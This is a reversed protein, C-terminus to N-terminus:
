AIMMLRVQSLHTHGVHSQVTHRLPFGTCEVIVIPFKKWENHKTLNEITSDCFFVLEPVVVEETVEEGSKRAAIIDEKKASHFKEKLKKKVLSLGYGVSMCRHYAPLVEVRLDKLGPITVHDHPQVPLPHYGQRQWLEEKSMEQVSGTEGRSLALVAEMMKQVPLEAETPLLVPRGCLSEQGPLCPKQLEQHRSFVLQPLASTHDYHCHSLLVASPKKQSEMGADLAIKLPDLWLGTREGARSHGTLTWHSPNSLPISPCDDLLHPSTPPM